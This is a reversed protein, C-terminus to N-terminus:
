IFWYLMNSAYSCAETANLNYLIDGYARKRSDMINSADRISILIIYRNYGADDHCKRCMDCVVTQTQQDTTGNILEARPFSILNCHSVWKNYSNESSECCCRVYVSHRLACM